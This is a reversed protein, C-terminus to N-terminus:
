NYTLMHYERITPPLFSSFILDFFVGSTLATQKRKKFFVSCPKFMYKLFFFFLLLFVYVYFYSGKASM